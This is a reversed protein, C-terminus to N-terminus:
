GCITSDSIGGPVNKIAFTCNVGCSVFDWKGPIKIPVNSSIRTGDGLQGHDNNGWVWLDGAAPNCPRGGADGVIAASHNLGASFHSVSVDEPIPLLVETPVSRDVTDGVGLQGKDNAGWAWLRLPFDGTGLCHYHGCEINLWLDSGSTRPPVKTPIDRNATDGLGLQGRDNRGWSWLKTAADVALTSYGTASVHNWPMSDSNTIEIPYLSAIFAPNGLQSHTSDGWVWMSGDKSDGSYGVVAAAHQYGAAVARYTKVADVTIPNASFGQPGNGLYGSGWSFLGPIDLFSWDPAPVQYAVVFQGKSAIPKFLETNVSWMAYPQDSPHNLQQIHTPTLKAGGDGLEYFENKGWGWLQGNVRGAFANNIGAVVGFWKADSNIMVPSHRDSTTGDGLQGVGNSGWAWLTGGVAGCDYGCQTQDPYPGGVMLHKTEDFESIPICRPITAM